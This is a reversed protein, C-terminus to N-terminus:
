NLKLEEPEHEKIWEKEGVFTSCKGLEILTTWLINYLKQKAGFNYYGDMHQDTAQMGIEMIKYMTDTDVINVTKM